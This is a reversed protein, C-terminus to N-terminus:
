NSEPVYRFSESVDDPNHETIIEKDALGLDEKINHEYTQFVVRISSSEEDNFHAIFNEMAFEYNLDAAFKEFEMLMNTAIPTEYMGKAAEDRLRKSLDLLSKSKVLKSEVDYDYDWPIQIDFRNRFAHNLPNTGYYGPNMTAFITLDPHAEIVEGRHDLLTLSRRSDLLSYLPTIIKMNIFNLEDLILVGGNRVVDTVPGDIWEGINIFKGFMQSPELAASGSVTALRLGRAAAWAEVSTTKGPGTPGYILCNTNTKRAYDFVEFDYLNGQVKRNIYRDAIEKRPVSALSVRLVNNNSTNNMVEETISTTTTAITQQPVAIVPSNNGLKDVLKLLSPSNDIVEQYWIVFTDFAAVPNGSVNSRLLAQTAKVGLVPVSSTEQYKTIDSLTVEVGAVNRTLLEDDHFLTLADEYSVREWRNSRGQKGDTVRSFVAPLDEGPVEFILTQRVKSDMASSRSEIVVSINSM